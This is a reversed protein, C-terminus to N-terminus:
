KTYGSSSLKMLYLLVNRVDFERENQIATKNVHRWMFGISGAGSIRYLEKDLCVSRLTKQIPNMFAIRRSFYDSITYVLGLFNLLFLKM